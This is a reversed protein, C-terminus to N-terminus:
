GEGKESAAAKLPKAERWNDPQALLGSAADASVAVTEGRKVTAGISPVHVEEFVGVYEVQVLAM